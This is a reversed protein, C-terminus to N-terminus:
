EASGKRQILVGTARRYRISNFRQRQAAHISM